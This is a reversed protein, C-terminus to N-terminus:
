IRWRAQQLAAQTSWVRALAKFPLGQSPCGGIGWSRIGPRAEVLPPFNSVPLSPSHAVGHARPQGGRKLGASPSASFLPDRRCGRCRLQETRLWRWTSYASEPSRDVRGAAARPAPHFVPPVMLFCAPWVGSFTVTWDAPAPSTVPSNIRFQATPASHDAGSRGAQWRGPARPRSCCRSSRMVLAIAQMRTTSGSTQRTRDADLKAQTM